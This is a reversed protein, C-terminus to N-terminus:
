VDEASPMDILIMLGSTPGGAPAVRSASPTALPVDGERLSAQFAELSDPLPAPPPAAQEAVRQPAATAPALWDRPTEGVITDVGADVWWKLTSAARDSDM